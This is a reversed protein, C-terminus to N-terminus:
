RRVLRSSGPWIRVRGSIIRNWDRRIRAMEARRVSDDKGSRPIDLDYEWREDQM